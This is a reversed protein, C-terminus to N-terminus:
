DHHEPAESTAAPVVKLKSEAEKRRQMERVAEVFYDRDHRSSATAAQAWTEAMDLAGHNDAM